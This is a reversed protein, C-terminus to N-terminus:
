RGVARRSLMVMAPATDRRHHHHRASRPPIVRRRQSRESSAVRASVWLLGPPCAHRGVGSGFEPNIDVVDFGDWFRVLVGGSQSRFLTTYPFLTSRPPRRIM